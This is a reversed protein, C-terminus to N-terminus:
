IDGATPQQQPEIADALATPADVLASRAPQPLSALDPVGTAREAARRLMLAGIRRSIATAGELNRAADERAKEDNLLPGVADTVVGTVAEVDPAGEGGATIQDIQKQAAAGLGDPALLDSLERATSLVREDEPTSALLQQLAAPPKLGLIESPKLGIGPLVFNSPAEILATRLVSRVAADGLKATENVLIDQLTSGQPDLLLNALERTAEAQGKGDADVDATAATYSRAQSAMEVLKAPSLGGGGSGGTVAAPGNVPVVLGSMPSGNLDTPQAGAAPGDLGLMARLAASARPSRDTFLRRSLYPYCEQVIAYDEDISLGIGELTSFARAVYLVYPPLSFLERNRKSMEEMVNTVGKVDVGESALQAEMAGIIEEQAKLELERGSLEAGYREKLEVEVREAIKAPGGGASLQRFAFSLGETIGSAKLKDPSTGEPSFGM